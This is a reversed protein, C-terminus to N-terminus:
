KQPTKKLCCISFCVWRFLCFFCSLELLWIKALVSPYFWLRKVTINDRNETVSIQRIYEPFL